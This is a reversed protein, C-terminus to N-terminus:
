RAARRLGISVGAVLLVLAAAATIAAWSSAALGRAPRAQVAVILETGREDVSSRVPAFATQWSGRYPEAIRGVPDHWSEVYGASTTSAQRPAVFVAPDRESYAPHRLVILETADAPLPPDSALRHPDLRALLVTVVPEGPLTPLGLTPGGTTVSAVLVGVVDGAYILPVSIGLKAFGAIGRAEYARSFYAHAPGPQRARGVAGRYYDRGRHDEKAEREPLLEKWRAVIHGQRDVVFWSDFPSEGSLDTRRAGERLIIEQVREHEGHAVLEALGPAAGVSEVAEGLQLLRVWLTEAKQQALDRQARELQQSADHIRLATLVTAVVLLLVTAGALLALAPSRRCWRLVRKLPPWRSVAPERGQMWLDLDTAAAEASGYRDAPDPALCRLCIAELDPDVGESLASPRPTPEDRAGGRRPAHGTLLAYLIAGVGFVDTRTTEKGPHKLQEPAAYAPTAGKVRKSAQDGGEDTLRVALGFDVVRPLDQPDLLINAPKLDRHLIGHVHAHYVARAIDRVREAAIRQRAPGSPNDRLEGLQKDLSSGEVFDMGFYPRGAWEGVEFVRVIGPHSLRAMSEAENRFHEAAVLPRGFKLAVKVKLSKKKATYVIGMGGHGLYEIQEYDGFDPLTPPPPDWPDMFLQSEAREDWELLRKVEHRLSEDDACAEDLLRARGEAPLTSAEAFLECVREWREPSV